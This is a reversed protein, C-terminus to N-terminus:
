FPKDSSLAQQPAYKMMCERFYRPNSPERIEVTHSHTVKKGDFGVIWIILSRWDARDFIRMVEYESSEQHENEYDRLGNAIELEKSQSYADMKLQARRELIAEAEPITEWLSQMRGYMFWLRWKGYGWQDWTSFFNRVSSKEDETLPKM